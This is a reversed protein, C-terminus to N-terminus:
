PKLELGSRSKAIRAAQLARARNINCHRRLKAKTKKKWDMPEAIRVGVQTVTPDSAWQVQKVAVFDAKGESEIWQKVAGATPPRLSSDKQLCAMVMSSVYDPVENQLSLEKLRQEIPTAEMNLM